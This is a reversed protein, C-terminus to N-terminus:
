TKKTKKRSEGVRQKARWRSRAVRYAVGHAPICYHEKDTSPVFVANCKPNACVRVRGLFTVVFAATKWDPCYLAPM